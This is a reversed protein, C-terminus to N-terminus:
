GATQEVCLLLRLQQKVKKGLRNQAGAISRVKLALPRRQLWDKEHATARGRQLVTDPGRATDRLDVVAQLCMTRAKLCACNYSARGRFAPLTRPWYLQAERTKRRTLPAPGDIAKAGSRKAALTSNHM